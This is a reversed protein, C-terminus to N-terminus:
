RQLSAIGMVLGVFIGVLEYRFIYAMTCFFLIIVLKKM